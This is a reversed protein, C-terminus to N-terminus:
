ASSTMWMFMWMHWQGQMFYCPHGSTLNLNAPPLLTPTLSPNIGRHTAAAALTISPTTGAILMATDAALTVLPPDWNDHASALHELCHHLLQTQCYTLQVNALDAATKSAASFTPPSKTWGMTLLLPIAALQPKGAYCPMMFALKLADDPALFIHYFGDTLDYKSLFLPGEALTQM